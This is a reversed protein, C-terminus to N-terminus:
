ENRRWSFDRRQSLISAEEFATRTPRSETAALDNDVEVGEMLDGEEMSFNAGVIASDHGLRELLGKWHQDRSLMEGNGVVILLAKARSIAVNFQKPAHLFGKDYVADSEGASKVTSSANAHVCM